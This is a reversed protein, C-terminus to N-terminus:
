ASPLLERAVERFDCRVPGQAAVAFHFSGRRWYDASWDPASPARMTVRPPELSVVFSDLARALGEGTAKVVAEKLAWTAFFADRRAEEDLGRLFDVEERAFFREALKMSDARRVGSEVDVGIDVGEALAVVVMGRAHSLSFRLDRPPSLLYPKGLPTAAFRWARAPRDAYRSLELRLLAHAAVYARRDEDFAFRAARAREFEDLIAELAPWREPAIKELDLARVAIAM